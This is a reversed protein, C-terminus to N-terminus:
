RQGINVFQHHGGKIVQNVLNQRTNQIRNCLTYSELYFVLEPATAISISQKYKNYSNIKNANVKEYIKFKIVKREIYM